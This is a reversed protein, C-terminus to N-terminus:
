SKLREVIEAHSLGAMLEEIEREEKARQESAELDARRKETRYNQLALAGVSTSEPDVSLYLSVERGERDVFVTRGGPKVTVTFHNRTLREVTDADIAGGFSGGVVKTNNNSILRTHYGINSARM